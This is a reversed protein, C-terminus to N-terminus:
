GVIIVIFRLRMSPLLENKRANFYDRSVSTVDAVLLDVVNTEIQSM